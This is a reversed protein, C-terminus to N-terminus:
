PSVSHEGHWTSSREAAILPDCVTGPQELWYIRGAQGQQADASESGTSSDDDDSSDGDGDGDDYSALSVSTLHVIIVYDCSSGRLKRSQEQTNM